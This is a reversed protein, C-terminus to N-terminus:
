YGGATKELKFYDNNGSIEAGILETKNTLLKVTFVQNGQIIERELRGGHSKYESIEEYLIRFMTQQNIIKKNKQFLYTNLSLYSMIIVTVLALALLSELLLYGNYNLVKKSM